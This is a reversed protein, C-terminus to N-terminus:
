GGDRVAEVAEVFRRAVRDWGFARARERGRAGMRARLAPDGLLRVLADALAREDEPPVLLGAEGDPVVEPVAAADGAVVPLGSAMAELFVIGFGEQRSPLCFLDAAAFEARLEDAEEVEGLFAVADGLGLDDALERLAPLRPGGGVVRLRADPVRDLVRPLCRLLTATNKRPYQRAVSLVTTGRRQGREHLGSWADPAIGEPVVALRERPLGYSRAAVEGCYDSTVLVRDARRASRRELRAQVAMRLRTAGREFRLEDAAIGKLCAVRPVGEAPLFCGDLDFTVVVDVSAPDFTSPLRLNFLIRRLLRGDAARPRVDVVEHGDARLADSLGAVGM